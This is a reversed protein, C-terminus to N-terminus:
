ISKMWVEICSTQYSVIVLVIPFYKWYLFFITILFMTYKFLNYFKLWYSELATNYNLHNNLINCEPVATYFHLFLIGVERFSICLYFHSTLLYKNQRFLTYSHTKKLEVHSPFAFLIKNLKLPFGLIFFFFFWLFVCFFCPVILSVAILALNFCSFWCQWIFLVVTCIFLM